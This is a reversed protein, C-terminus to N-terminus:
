AGIAIIDEVNRLNALLSANNLLKAFQGAGSPGTYAITSSFADFV